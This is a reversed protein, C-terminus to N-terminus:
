IDMDDKALSEYYKRTLESSLYDDNLLKLLLVRSKKTHLHITNNDENIRLKGSLVPHHKIFDIIASNPIDSLVPSNTAVGILKRSFSINTIAEELFDINEVLGSKQIEVLGKKAEKVILETFGFFKELLKINIIFLDDGLKMFEFSSNIKLIDHELEIFRHKNKSLMFSRPTDKKVLSVPYNKKYLIINSGNMGIKILIAKIDSMSDSNFSFLPFEGTAFLENLSNLDSPTEKLDYRYIADKREDASSLNLISFEENEIFSEKIHAIFQQKLKEQASSDIDAFKIKYGNVDHLIFYFEAGVKDSIFPTLMEKFSSINM